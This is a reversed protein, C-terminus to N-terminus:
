GIGYEVCIARDLNPILHHNLRGIKGFIFHKDIAKTQEVLITSRKILGTGNLNEVSVHTPLPKKSQSTIPSLQVVPSHINGKDNQVVVAPRVGTQVCSSKKINEVKFNPFHKLVSEFEKIMDEDLEDDIYPFYAMVIDGRILENGEEDFKRREIARTMDAVGKM